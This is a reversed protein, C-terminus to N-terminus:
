APIVPDVHLIENAKTATDSVIAGDRMEVIRDASDLARSRHAIVVRTASLSTISNVVMSENAPDLHSTAEDLVLLRPKKCLARALIVRQKQGGSLSSGMDGVLTRYGMPMVSIDTHIAALKAAHVVEEDTVDDRGFGINEILSGAFLQDNQMVAAIHERYVAPDLKSISVNGFLIEGVSPTLVGLILKALTSKGSGSAGIIALCQGEPITLCLDKVIWPDGESYRFSVNNLVLSSNQIKLVDGHHPIYEPESLAIDALREAHLGLMRLDIFADVLATSRLSFMDAYSVFAILAGISLEENIVSIAGLWILVVRGLGFITQNFASFSIALKQVAINRLAMKTTLNSFRVRRGITQNALKLSLIGRISELAESQQGATTELLRQNAQRFPSFFVARLIGYLVIMASSVLTLKPSYMWMVALTVTATMGDLVSSVLQNTLVGQIAQTSALKSMVDGVHRKEFWSLPLNLLHGFIDSTWQVSISASLWNVLWSRTATFVAQFISVVVFGVGLLTILDNDASPLAQDITWQMLLPSVLTLVELTAALALIQAMAGTVGRLSGILSQLSVRERRKEPAFQSSPWLELAVGTFADAAEDWTVLLEGRAPDLVKLGKKTVAGLVIFHQMDWHLICPTRLQALDELGVKVARSQLGMESAISILRAMSAGNLSIAHRSRLSKLDTHHGYYGAIM